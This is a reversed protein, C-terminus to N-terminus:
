ESRATQCGLMGLYYDEFVIGGAIGMGEFPLISLYM